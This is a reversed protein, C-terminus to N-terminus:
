MGHGGNKRPPPVPIFYASTRRGDVPEDTIGGDAIRRHRAPVEFPSDLIPKEIVVPM